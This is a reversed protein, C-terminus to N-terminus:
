LDQQWEIWADVPRFGMALNIDLMFANETANFTDIAEAAPRQERIHDLNDLKVLLGLRHGRHDPDVLTTNQWVHSPRDLDVVLWTFAVMKDGILAGSQYSRRGRKERAEEGKRMRDADLKEPEWNIDGTPADVNLRAELYALDDIIDDPAVGIWRRLRYGESRKDAEARLEALKAEDLTTLDLRSRTEALGAKAGMAEAFAAGDPHRDVTAAQLHRRDNARAREVALAHLARGVGHRRHGPLVLLDVEVNSLNDLQPFTLELYGVPQDDIYGLYREYTYGPPPNDFLALFNKQSQYPIDPCDHIATARAIEYAIEPSALPGTSIRM